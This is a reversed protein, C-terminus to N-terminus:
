RAQCTITWFPHEVKARLLAKASEILDLLRGEQAESLVRRQCPKM